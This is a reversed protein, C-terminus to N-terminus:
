GRSAAAKFCAVSHGHRLETLEPERLECTGAAFLACRPGFRCGEPLDLANPPEGIIASRGSGDDRGSFPDVVEGTAVPLLLPRADLLARSYPHLPSRFFATAEGVEVIKGLYMVAVQDCIHEVVGLDHSIFLITLRYRERLELFLNLIQAQVSVDLSSVAEDAVIFEPDSLLARALALRQLQGGSLEGPMRELVASDLGVDAVLKEIRVAAGEGALDHLYAVERFAKGLNQAPDFSLLPNQFVMQMKRRSERLDRTKAGGMAEGDYRLEGRFPDALHLICKGLTSKGCGSEGVLGFIEGRGISLSVGDVARLTAVRGGEGKVRFSKEMCLAELLPAKSGQSATTM